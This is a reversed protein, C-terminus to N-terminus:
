RPLQAARRRLDAENDRWWQRVVDWNLDPPQTPPFRNEILGMAAVTDLGTVYFPAGPMRPPRGAAFAEGLAVAVRPDRTPALKWLWGMRKGEDTEKRYKRLADAVEDFTMKGSVGEPPGAVARGPSLLALTALMLVAAIIKPM